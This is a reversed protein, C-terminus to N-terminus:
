SGSVGKEAPFLRELGAQRYRFRDLDSLIKWSGGNRRRAVPRKGAFLFEDEGFRHLSLTGVRGTFCWAPLKRLLIRAPIGLLRRCARRARIRRFFRMGARGCTVAIRRGARDIAYVLLLRCDAAVPMADAADNNDGCTCLGAPAIGVVRHVVDVGSAATFCIVDGRRVDRYGVPRLLLRDGDRFLPNMSAGTYIRSSNM